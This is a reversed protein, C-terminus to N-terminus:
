VVIAFGVGGAISWFRFLTIAAAIVAIMLRKTKMEKPNRTIPPYLYRAAPASLAWVSCALFVIIKERAPNIIVKDANTITLRIPVKRPILKPINSIQIALPM